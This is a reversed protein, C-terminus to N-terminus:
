STFGNPISGGATEDYMTKRLKKQAWKLEM